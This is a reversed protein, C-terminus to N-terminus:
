EEKSIIITSIEYLLQSFSRKSCLAQWLTLAILKEKTQTPTKKGASNGFGQPWLIGSNKTRTSHLLKGRSFALM